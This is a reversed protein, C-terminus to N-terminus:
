LQASAPNKVDRHLGWFIVLGIFAKLENMDIFSHRPANYGAARKKAIEMNTREVILTLMEDNLFLQFSDLENKVHKAASVPGTREKVVDVCRRKGLIKELPTSSWVSRRNENSEEDGSEIESEVESVVNEASIESFMMDLGDSVYSRKKHCRNIYFRLNRRHVSFEYFRTCM